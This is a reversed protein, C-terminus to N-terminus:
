ALVIISMAPDELLIYKTAYQISGVLCAGIIGDFLFVIMYVIFNKQTVVIKMTKLFPLKKEASPEQMYRERMQASERHGPIITLFFVLNLVVFIWAMNTYSQRDGYSIFLPPIILGVATGVLGLGMRFFGAKRRENDSRFKDPFLAANSLQFITYFLEYMCSSLLIWGFYIWAGTIPDLYPPTFILALMFISPIGGIIIFPFRKGYKKWLKNPKDTFYGVLPDNISNWIAYIIYGLTVIWINLGVETEWYFIFFSGFIGSFVMYIFEAMSYSAMNLNSVSSEKELESM